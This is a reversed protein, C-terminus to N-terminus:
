TILGSNYPVQDGEATFCGPIAVGSGQKFVHLLKVISSLFFSVQVTAIMIIQVKFNSKLFDIIKSWDFQM